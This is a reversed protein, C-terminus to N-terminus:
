IGVKIIPDYEILMVCPKNITLYNMPDNYYTEIRFFNWNFDNQIQRNSNVTIKPYEMTIVDGVACNKIRTERNNFSNKIIYEGAEKTTIVCKNPYIYGEEDSESKLKFVTNPTTVDIRYRVTDRLAFPRNTIVRLEFGVVQGAYEIRSVAFSAEFYIDDFREHGRFRLPLYKKRQLWRTIEREEYASVAPDYDNRCVDKCIQFTSELTADYSYGTTVNKSGNHVPVTKFTIESGETFTELGGGNFSGIMFGMDSLRVGDYIM